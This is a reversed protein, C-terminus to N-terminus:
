TAITRRRRLYLLSLLMLIPLTPDFTGDSSGVTCGGSSRPAPPPTVPPDQVNVTRTVETAANGAADMVNYTVTYSGAVATNVASADIVISGSIDGDVDDAATAGLEAYANGTTITQPNAGSLTIVPAVSDPDQVTVTRTVETAANGAADMVNYTVTYDGANATDVASTDIVVSGSIDGDVDDAATAGLEAYADGTTIFQPNDGVLTIVPPVNDPVVVTIVFAEQFTADVQDNTQIRVSYNGVLAGADNARLQDGAINFLANDTDGIGPELSYIHTNGISADMTTLTGVVANVGDSTFITDNSLAIDTPPRNITALRIDRVRDNFFDVIYVVGAADVAIDIPHNLAARLPDRGDGNFDANGNGAITDIIGDVDIRRIRNNNYDAIYINGKADGSVRQPSRFRASAAPGEDGGFGASGNGAITTIIGTGSDVFRINHNGSDAIYLDDNSDVYVGFPNDLQADTALGGDGASGTSGNGAVTTITGGLDVKRVRPGNDVVTASAQDVIYMVGNDAVSVSWPDRLTATTAPINDGNFTTSGNGAVTSIVGSTDIKRVRKNGRDVFYINGAGDIDISVPGNIQALTAAMGDNTFGATGTGAITSITGSAGNAAVKRIRHNSTDAIYVNGASDVAVGSPNSLSAVSAPGGDGSYTSVGNGAFAFIELKRVLVYLDKRSDVGTYTPANAEGTWDPETGPNTGIGVDDALAANDWGNYALITESAGHNHIQMSGLAQSAGPTDDFDFATPDEGALGLGGAPTYDNNWFEINGTAIGTGTTVTGVNSFVNMDGVITQFTDTTPVGTKRVNPTFADMSVWVWQLVGGVELEMCYAVRNFSVSIGSNDVTYNPKRGATDDNDPIALQYILSYENFESVNAASCGDTQFAYTPKNVLLALLTFLFIVLPVFVKRMVSINIM